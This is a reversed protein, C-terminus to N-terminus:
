DTFFAYQVENTCLSFTALFVIATTYLEFILTSGDPAWCSHLIVIMDQMTLVCYTCLLRPEAIDQITKPAYQVQQHM